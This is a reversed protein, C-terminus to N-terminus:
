SNFFVEKLIISIGIILVFWGFTPKLKSSKIKGSFYTGIFIGITSFSIITILFPWNIHTEMNEGAFGILSKAAIIVLSTGIAEKIPLKHWSVLVPIILFGGGAGVLGTFTGVIAGEFLILLLYFRNRSHPGVDNSEKIAQARIMSFSAAIMLISFLLLLLGNKSIGIHTLLNIQSPISPLLFARTLFVFIISPIGFLVAAKFNVWGKNFYTLSGIASSTGVIFLSYATAEVAEIGFLYVLVPVTLVSGGGGLLGLLIGIFVSAIYGAIDM